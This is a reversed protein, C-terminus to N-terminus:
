VCGPSLLDWYEPDAPENVVMSFRRPTAQRVNNFANGTAGQRTGGLLVVPLGACASLRVADNNGDLDSNGLRTARTFGSSSTYFPHDTALGVSWQVWGSSTTTVTVDYYRVLEGNIVQTRLTVVASCAGGGPSTVTCWYAAPPTWTWDVPLAWGDVTALVALDTRPTYAADLTVTVPAAGTPRVDAQAAGSGLPVGIRIDRGLCGSPPTITMSTTSGAAQTTADLRATPCPHGSYATTLSAGAVALSAAEAIRAPVVVVLALLVLAVARRM